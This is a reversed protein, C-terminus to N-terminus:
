RRFLSRIIQVTRERDEPALNSGSPLCLGFEFAAEGVTGGRM